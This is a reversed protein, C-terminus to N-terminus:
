TWPGTAATAATGDGGGSATDDGTATTATPRDGFIGGSDIITVDVTDDTDAGMIGIAISTM